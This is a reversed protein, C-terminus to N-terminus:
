ANITSTNALHNGTNNQPINFELQLFYIRIISETIKKVEKHTSLMEQHRALLADTEVVMFSCRAHDLIFELEQTPTESIGVVEIDFTLSEGALPHNLDVVVKDDDAETIRAPIQQGNPTSLAITQGVQPDAGPPIDKRLFSQMHEENRHGYADEPDLTFTKKENLSMDMLASEFGKILQGAGMKIELPDREESTDFIEGNALTGKYHVSIFLDNKVEEM